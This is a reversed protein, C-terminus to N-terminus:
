QDDDLMVFHQEDLFVDSRCMCCKTTFGAEICKKLCKGHYRANCCHLKFHQTPVKEHCLICMDTETDESVSTLIDDYITWGDDLLAKAKESMSPSCSYMLRTRKEAIDDMIRTITKYKGLVDNATIEVQSCVNITHNSVFLSNCEFDLTEFPPELTTEFTHTVVLHLPEVNKCQEELEFTDVSIPYRSAVQRWYSTDLAVTYKVGHANDGMDHYASDDEDLEPYAMLHNMRCDRLFKTMNDYTICMEMTSPPDVDQVHQSLISKIVFDGYVMGKNQMILHAIHNAFEWNKGKQFAM